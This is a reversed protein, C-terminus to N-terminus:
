AMKFHRKIFSKCYLLFVIEAESLNYLRIYMTPISYEGRSRGLPNGLPIVCHQTTVESKQLKRQTFNSKDYSQTWYRGKELFVYQKITYIVM